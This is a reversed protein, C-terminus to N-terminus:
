ESVWAVTEESDVAPNHQLNARRVQILRACISIAIEEPTEAPLDIGIPADIQALFEESVGRERLLKKVQGVRRRSGMLGVYIPPSEALQLIAEVDHQYSRTVLAVYLPGRWDSQDLTHEVTMQSRITHAPLESEPAIDQRDDQLMIRFGLPDAAHALAVGCHGAGVILLVPDPAIIWPDDQHASIPSELTKLQWGCGDPFHQQVSKGAALASTAEEISAIADEELPDLRVRMTGGCIGDKKEALTGRLDIEVDVPHNSGIEARAADIVRSELAGGGVTGLLWDRGCAMQTGVERPTSGACNTVTALVAPGGRLREGLTMLFRSPTM